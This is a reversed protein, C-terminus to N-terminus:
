LNGWESPRIRALGDNYSMESEISLIEVSGPFPKFYTSTKEDEELLLPETSEGIFKSEKADIRYHFGDYWSEEVNFLQRNKDGGFSYVGTKKIEAHATQLFDFTTQNGEIAALVEDSLQSRRRVDSFVLAAPFTIALFVFLIRSKWANNQNM